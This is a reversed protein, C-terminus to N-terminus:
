DADESACNTAREATVRNRLIESVSSEYCVPLNTTRAWQSSNVDLSRLEIEKQRKGPGSCYVAEMHHDIKKGQSTTIDLISLTPFSKYWRRESAKAQNKVSLMRISLCAIDYGFIRPVLAISLFPESIVERASGKHEVNLFMMM